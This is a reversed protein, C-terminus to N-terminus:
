RQPTVSTLWLNVVEHYDSEGVPSNSRGNVTSEFRAIVGDALAFWVDNTKTGSTQGTLMQVVHVHVAPVGVGGVLVNEVGKVTADVTTAAGAVSCGGHTTAGPVTSRPRIVTGPPCVYTRQDRVSFFEHHTTFSALDIEPGSTCTELDDWRQALADWRLDRGCPTDTVTITTRAPYDHRAGGMASVDEHGTTAYVYVGPPPGDPPVAPRGAPQSVTAEAASVRSTPAPTVPVATPVSAPRPAPSTAMEGPRAAAVQVAGNTAQQRYREVMKSVRVPVARNTIAGMALVDGVLVVAIATALSLRAARRARTM